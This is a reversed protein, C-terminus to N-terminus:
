REPKTSRSPTATSRELPTDNTLSRTVGLNLDKAKYPLKPTLDKMPHSRKLFLLAFATNLTVGYNTVFCKSDRPLDSWSGSGKQNTVLIEAGWRYWEKDGIAPLDYLMGVREVSWLFYLDQPPVPRKMQGTPIGIERYLAMLGRLVRLSEQDPLTAGPTPLKLGGGIALGLLGVCIMSRSRVDSRPPPIYPWWGDTKQTREFREVLLSFTREMPIGHRQAVWLALMAFQTNSNDTGKVYPLAKVDQSNEFWLKESKQFITLLRLARPVEVAQIAEEASKGGKMEKSLEELSKLL